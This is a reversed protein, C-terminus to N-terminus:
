QSQEDNEGDKKNDFIKTLADLISIVTLARFECEVRGAYVLDETEESEVPQHQIGKINFDKTLTFGIGEEGCALSLSECTMHNALGDKLDNYNRLCEGSVSIKEKNAGKLVCNDGVSIDSGFALNNNDLWWKLRNTLGDSIGSIYITTAKISGLAEVLLSTILDANGKSSNSILLTEQEAHYLCYITKSTAPMRFRIDQEIDEKIEKKRARGVKNLGEDLKIREVIEDLKRKVASAPPTKSDIRVAFSYGKGSPFRQCLEGDLLEFGLSIPSTFNSEEFKHVSFAEIAKEMVPLVSKYSIVSKLLNKHDM